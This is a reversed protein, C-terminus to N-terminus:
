AVILQPEILQLRARLFRLVQKATSHFEVDQMLVELEEAALLYGLQTCLKQVQQKQAYSCGSVNLAKNILNEVVLPKEIIQSSSIEILREAYIVISQVNPQILSTVRSSDLGELGHQPNDSVIKISQVCEADTFRSAISFFASAEMDIGGEDPYEGSPANLTLCPSLAVTRRAVQPPYYSRASEIDRSSSVLFAEGVNLSAHGAIGVNLWISCEPQQYQYETSSRDALTMDDPLTKLNIAQLAGLWGLSASMNLSGIGSILVNVTQVPASEENSVLNNSYLLFPKDHVRKLKFHEILPKAESLLACVFNINKKSTRM